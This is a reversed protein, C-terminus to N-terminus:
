RYAVRGRYRSAFRYVYSRGRSSRRYNRNGRFASQPPGRVLTEAGLVAAAVFVASGVEVALLALVVRM